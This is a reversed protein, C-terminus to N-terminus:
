NKMNWFKADFSERVHVNCFTGTSNGISNTSQRMRMASIFMVTKSKISYIGYTSYKAEALSARVTWFEPQHVSIVIGYELLRNGNWLESNNDAIYFKKM